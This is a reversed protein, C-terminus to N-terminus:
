NSRRPAGGGMRRSLTEATASLTAEVTAIPKRDIKGIREAYPVTLAAIAPGRSDLIPFSVAYLGRV